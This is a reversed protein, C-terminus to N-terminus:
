SNNQFLPSGALKCSWLLDSSLKTQQSIGTPVHVTDNCSRLCDQCKSRYAKLFFIFHGRLPIAASPTPLMLLAPWKFMILLQCAGPLGDARFAVIESVVSIKSTQYVHNRKQVSFICCAGPWSSNGPTCAWLLWYNLHGRHLLVADSLLFRQFYM